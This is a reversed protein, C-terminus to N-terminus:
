SPRRGAAEGSDELPRSKLTGATLDRLIEVFRSLKFRIEELESESLAVYGAALDDVGPIRARLRSWEDRAALSALGVRAEAAERLDHLAEILARTKDTVRHNM